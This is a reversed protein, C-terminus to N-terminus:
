APRARAPRRALTEWAEQLLAPVEAPDLRDLAVLVMAYGDFHPTTFFPGGRDLLAQKHPLDRARIALIPGDPASSGLAALDSKRLPREWAYAKKRVSWSRLAGLTETTQPLAAATTAIHEWTAM